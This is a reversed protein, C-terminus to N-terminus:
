RQHTTQWVFIGGGTGCGGGAVLLALADTAVSSLLAM